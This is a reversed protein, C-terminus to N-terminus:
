APSMCFLLWESRWLCPSTSPNVDCHLAARLGHRAAACPQLVLPKESATDEYMCYAKKIGGRCGGEFHTFDEENVYMRPYRPDATYDFVQSGGLGLVKIWASNQPGPTSPLANAIRAILPLLTGTTTHLGLM